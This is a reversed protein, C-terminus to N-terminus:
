LADARRWRGQLRVFAVQAIDEADAPSSGRSRAVGYALARLAAWDPEPSLPFTVVSPMALEKSRGPPANRRRPPGLLICRGRRDPLSVSRGPQRPRSRGGAAGGPSV